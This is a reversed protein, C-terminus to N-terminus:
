DKRTPEHGGAEKKIEEVGRKVSEKVREFAGKAKGKEEDAVGEAQRERDGTLGGEMQKIKGKAKDIFEGM